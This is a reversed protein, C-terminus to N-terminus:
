FQEHVVTYTKTIKKDRKKRETSSKLCEGPAVSVPDNDCGDSVFALALGPKSSLDMWPSLWVVLTQEGM